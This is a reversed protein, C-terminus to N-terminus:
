QLVFDAPITELPAGATGGFSCHGDSTCTWGWPCCSQGGKCCMANAKPCCGYVFTGYGRECCTQGAACHTAPEFFFTRPCDASTRGVVGGGDDEYEPSVIAVDAVTDAAGPDVGSRGGEMAGAEVETLPRGDGTSPGMLLALAVAGLARVRVM